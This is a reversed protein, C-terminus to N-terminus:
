PRPDPDPGCGCLPRGCARACRRRRAAAPPPACGPSALGARRGVVRLAASWWAAGRAELAGCEVWAGGGGIGVRGAARLPALVDGQVLEAAAASDAAVRGLRGGVGDGYMDRLLPLLERRLRGRV